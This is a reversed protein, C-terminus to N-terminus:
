TLNSLKKLDIKQHLSVGGYTILLIIKVFYNKAIKVIHWQIHHGGTRKREKNKKKKERTKM